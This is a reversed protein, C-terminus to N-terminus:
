DFWLGTYFEKDHSAQRNGLYLGFFTAYTQPYILKNFYVHKTNPQIFTSQKITVVFLITELFKGIDQNKYNHKLTNQDRITTSKTWVEVLIPYTLGRLFSVAASARIQGSM